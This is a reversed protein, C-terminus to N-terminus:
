MQTRGNRSRKLRSGHRRWIARRRRKQRMSRTVRMWVAIIVSAFGTCQKQRRRRRRQTVCESFSRRCPANSTSVLLRQVARSRCGRRSSSGRSRGSPSSRHTSSRCPCSGPGATRPPRSRRTNLSKLWRGRRTAVAIRTRHVRKHLARGQGSLLLALLRGSLCHAQRHMRPFCASRLTCSM